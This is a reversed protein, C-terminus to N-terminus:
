RSRFHLNNWNFIIHLTRCVIPFFILFLFSENSLDLFFYILINIYFYVNIYFYLLYLYFRYLVYDPVNQYESRVSFKHISRTVYRM